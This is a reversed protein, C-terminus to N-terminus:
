MKKLQITEYHLSNIALYVIRKAAYAYLVVERAHVIRTSIIIIVYNDNEM